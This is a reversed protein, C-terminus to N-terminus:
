TWRSSSGLRRLAAPSCSWLFGEAGPPLLRELGGQVWWWPAWLPFFCCSVVGGSFSPFLCEWSTSPACLLSSGRGGGRGALLLV